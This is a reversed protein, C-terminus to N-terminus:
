FYRLQFNLTNPKVGAPANKGVLEFYGLFRGNFVQEDSGIRLVKRHKKSVIEVRLEKHTAARLRQAFDGSESLVSSANNKM